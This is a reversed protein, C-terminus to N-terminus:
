RTVIEVGKDRCWRHWMQRYVAELNRTFGDADTLVSESFTQRLTQRLSALRKLDGALRAAIDIYEDVSKGILDELGVHALATGGYRSIYVRGELMVIPVGMWIADCTTTHGNAPFPDLAIDTREILRLYDERPRRNVLEIRDASIGKREALAHWHRELYGPSYALVIIRSRPVRSLIELWADVVRPTVKAYNNFSGFTVWGNAIAPSPSVDPAPAPQYCFYSRPLRVLQETYFQDTEGPPDAREDTLRYDMASMGTTNQYGIYTVQIPAPKRAFTLLRNVGMHGSLDVLIDIRDDRVLQAVAEDSERCVDRWHDVSAELRATVDDPQAVSSYCYIEFQEHDHALLIPETFFNVAHQRFHPSVYGVRLRRDPTPDNDHPAAQATLPEAFRRAWQLHQEFLEQPDVDPEFNLVYLVDSHPRADQPVLECWRRYSDIAERGRGQSHFSLAMAYYLMPSVAGAAVGEQCYRLVEDPQGNLNFIEALRAYADPYNPQFRLAEHLAVVAERTRDLKQLAVARQYHAVAADPRVRLARELYSLSEAFCGYEQLLSGCNLLTEVHNPQLELLRHYEASAGEIDDQVRLINALNSRAEVFQPALRVAERFCAAARDWNEAARYAVGMSFHVLASHPAQEVAETLLAIADDVRGLEVLLTSLSCAADILGPQLEVARRYAALADNPRRLQRLVNGLAHHAQAHLPALKIARELHGAAVSPESQSCALGLNYHAAAFNPAMSVAQQFSARAETLRGLARYAEGLNCHFVPNAPRADIAQRIIHIAEEHRGRQHAILGLLHLADPHGPQEVLVQRYLAEAEALNGGQHLRMATAISEDPISM